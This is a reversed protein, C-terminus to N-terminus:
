RTFIVQVVVRSPGPTPTERSGMEGRVGEETRASRAMSGHM